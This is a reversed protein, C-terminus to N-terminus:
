SQFSVSFRPQEYTPNTAVIMRVADMEDKYLEGFTDVKGKIEGSTTRAYPWSQFANNICPCNDMVQLLPHGLDDKTELYDRMDEVQASLDSPSNAAPAPEFVHGFDAMKQAITIGSSHKTKTFMYHPDGVKKVIRHRAFYKDIDAADQEISAGPRVIEGCVYLKHMKKVSGDKRKRLVFSPAVAVVAIATPHEYGPDEALVCPWGVEAVDFFPIYHSSEDYSTGFVAGEAACWIGNFMRNLRHGSMTSLSARQKRGEETWAWNEFDFWTPNDQHCSVLRRMKGFQPGANYAQLRQYDEPTEVRRLSNSCPTARQNTWHSPPGPNLDCMRQQYPMRRASGQPRYVPDRTGRAFLEWANLQAEIGENLYVTDWGTGYAKSPEDLGACVIESGWLHYSHRQSRQCRTVEPHTVGILSELTVLISDTM